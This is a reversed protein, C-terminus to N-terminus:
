PLRRPTCARIEAAVPPLPPRLVGDDVARLFAARWQASVPEASKKLVPYGLQGAGAVPFTSYPQAKHLVRAMFARARDPWDPALPMAVLRDREAAVGRDVAAM